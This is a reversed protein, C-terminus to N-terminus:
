LYEKQIISLYITLKEGIFFHVGIMYCFSYLKNKILEVRIIYTFALKISSILHALVICNDSLDSSNLKLFIYLYISNSQKNLFLQAHVFCFLSSYSAVMYLMQHYSIAANLLGLIEGFSCIEQKQFMQLQFMFHFHHDLTQIVPM